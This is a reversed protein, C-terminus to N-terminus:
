EALVCSPSRQKLASSDLRPLAGRSRVQLLAGLPPKATTRSYFLGPIYKANGKSKVTFALEHGDKSLVLIEDKNGTVCVTVFNSGFMGENVQKCNSPLLNQYVPDESIPQYDQM